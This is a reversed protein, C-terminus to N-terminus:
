SCNFHTDSTQPHSVNYTLLTYKKILKDITESVNIENTNINALMIKIESQRTNLQIIKNKIEVDSKINQIFSKYEEMFRIRENDTKSSNIKDELIQKYDNIKMQINDIIKTIKYYEDLLQNM